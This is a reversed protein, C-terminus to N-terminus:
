RKNVKRPPALLNDIDYKGYKKLRQRYTSYSVGHYDCMAKASNFVNGCNDYYKKFDPNLAQEISYGCNKRYMFACYSVGVKDCAEKASNCDPFLRRIYKKTDKLVEKLPLGKKMRKYYADRSVHHAECMEDLTRYTCGLYDVYPGRRINNDWKGKTLAESLSMTRLRYNLTAVNLGYFCALKTKSPFENGLHDKIKVSM